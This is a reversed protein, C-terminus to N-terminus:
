SSAILIRRTLSTIELGGRRSSKINKAIEIVFNAYFDLGVIAYISKPQKLKEEISLVNREKIWKLLVIVNPTM